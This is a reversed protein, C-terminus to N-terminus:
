RIISGAKVDKDPHLLIPKGNVDVALIMGRSEVGMLKAPKMNVLVPVLKGILEEAKYEEAIGAVVQRVEDGIDIELRMLKKSKEIKEAKIIKGIRLDLKKFEEFSVVNKESSSVDKTESMTGGEKIEEKIEEEDPKTEGREESIAKKIREMMIKELEEIKEKEIKQFPIVPKYITFDEVKLSDEIKSREVDFGFVKSLRRMTKPLIPYCLIVLAKAIQLCDALVKKASDLDSKILEWPKSHQFTNNGYSSLEMIADSLAKFEWVELSSKIKNITEEIM